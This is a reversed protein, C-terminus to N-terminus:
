KFKSDCCNSYTFELRSLDSTDYVEDCENGPGEQDILGAYGGRSMATISDGETRSYVAGVDHQDEGDGDSDGFNSLLNHGLEHLAAHLCEYYGGEDTHEYYITSCDAVDRGGNCTAHYGGGYAVGTSSRNSTILLNADAEMNSINCDSYDRWWPLLKDYHITYSTGCPDAADFEEFVQETPAPIKTDKVSAVFDHSIEIRDQMNDLYNKITYTSEKGTYGQDVCWNWLKESTWLGIEYTAM